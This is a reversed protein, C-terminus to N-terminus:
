APSQNATIVDSVPLLLFDISFLKEISLSFIIVFPKSTLTKINGDVPRHMFMRIEGIKSAQIHGNDLVKFGSQSYTISNYRKRSKFRPFGAKINKGNKKEEVRRYFNNYTNDLRMAVDQLVQSYIGRFEPFGKKVEPIENQQSYRTVKRGMEYAYIRQQLMANYLERCTNLTADLIGTQKRNPYLRFKYAKMM